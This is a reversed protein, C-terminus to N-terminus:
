ASHGGREAEARGGNPSASIAPTERRSNPPAPWWPANVERWLCDLLEESHPLSMLWHLALANGPEQRLTALLLDLDGPEPTVHDEFTSEFPDGWMSAELMVRHAAKADVKQLMGKLVREARDYERDNDSTPDQRWLEAAIFLVHEPLRQHRQALEWVEPDDTLARAARKAQEGDGFRVIVEAAAQKWTFHHAWSIHHRFNAPHTELLDVLEEVVGEGGLRALVLAAESKAEPSHTLFPRFWPLDSATSFRSVLWIVSALSWPSLAHLDPAQKWRLADEAEGVISLIWLGIERVERESSPGSAQRAWSLLLSRNSGPHELERRLMKWRLDELVKSRLEQPTTPELWPLLGAVGDLRELQHCLWRNMRNQDLDELHEQFLSPSNLEPKLRGTLAEARLLKAAESAHPTGRLVDVARELLSGGQRIRALMEDVPPHQRLVAAAFPALESDELGALVLPQHQPQYLRLLHELISARSPEEPRKFRREREWVLASTPVEAVDQLSAGLDYPLRSKAMTSWLTEFSEFRPLTQIDFAPLDWPKPRSRELPTSNEREQRRALIRQAEALAQHAARAVEPDADQLYPTLLEAERDSCLTKAAFRRQPPSGNALLEAFFPAKADRTPFLEEVVQSYPGELMEAFSKFSQSETVRRAVEGALTQHARLTHNGASEEWPHQTPLWKPSDDDKRHPPPPAHELVALLLELPLAKVQTASAFAVWREDPVLSVLSPLVEAIGIPLEQAVLRAMAEIRLPRFDDQLATRLVEEPVAGHLHTHAVIARWRAPGCSDETFEAYLPELDKDYDVIDGLLNCAWLLDWQRLWVESPVGQTLGQFRVLAQWDSDDYEGLELINLAARMLAERKQEPSGSRVVAELLPKVTAPPFRSLLDLRELLRSAPARQAWVKAANSAAGAELTDILRDLETVWPGPKRGLLYEEARSFRLVVDLPLELELTIALREAFEEPSRDESFTPSASRPPRAPLPGSKLFEGVKPPCAAILTGAHPRLAPAWRSLALWLEGADELGGPLGSDYHHLLRNGHSAFQLRKRLVELAVPPEIREPGNPVLLRTALALSSFPRHSPAGLNRIFATLRERSPLLAAFHQSIAEASPEGILRLLEAEADPQDVLHLAACFEALSKHSFQYREPAVQQVLDSNELVQHVATLVPTSGKMAALDEQRIMAEGRRLMAWAAAGLVGMGERLFTLRTEPTIRKTEQARRILAHISKRFVTPVDLRDGLDAEELQALLSVGLPTSCLDAVLEKRRDSPRTRATSEEKLETLAAWHGAKGLSEFLSQAQDPSLPAIRFHLGPTVETPLPRAGILSPGPWDATLVRIQERNEQSVEDLGDVFLWVSGALAPSQALEVLRRCEAETLKPSVAIRLARELSFGQDVLRRAEIRLAPGLLLHEHLLRGSLRRLEISKGSGPGGELFAPRTNGSLWSQFVEELLDDETLSSDDSHPQQELPLALTKSVDLVEGNWCPVRRSAEALASFLRTEPVSPTVMGLRILLDLVSRFPQIRQEYERGWISHTAHKKDTRDLVQRAEQWQSAPVFLTGVPHNQFFSRVKDEIGDVRLALGEADLEGTFGLVRPENRSERGPKLRPAVEPQQDLLARVFLAAMKSRGDAGRDLAWRPAKVGLFREVLAATLQIEEGLSEPAGPQETYFVRAPADNVLPALVHPVALRLRHAKLELPREELFHFRPPLARPPLEFGLIEAAEFCGAGLEATGFADKEIEDLELGLWLQRLARRAEELREAEVCRLAEAASPLARALMSRQPPSRPPCGRGLLVERAWAREEAPIM